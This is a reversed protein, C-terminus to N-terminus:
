YDFLYPFDNVMDTRDRIILEVDDCKDFSNVICQQADSKTRFVRDTYDIQGDYMEYHRVIYRRMIDMYIVCTLLGRTLPSLHTTSTGLLTRYLARHACGVRPTQRVRLSVHKDTLNWAGGRLETGTNSLFV